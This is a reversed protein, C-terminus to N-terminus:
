QKSKESLDQAAIPVISYFEGNLMRIELPRKDVVRPPPAPKEAPKPAPRPKVTTAATIQEQLLQLAKMTAAKTKAQKSDDPNRLSLHLTGRNQGLDLMAAQDPTVVLTVSQLRRADVKHETPADVLNDVGLIEVNQLLTTTIGGGAHDDGNLTLLVDVRNGPLLFGAVNAAVNPTQITFARMGSPILGALGNKAGKPALKVDLVPEGKQIPHRVVRGVVDKADTAVGAPLLDKPCDAVSVQDEKITDGRSLDNEAVVISVTDPKANNQTAFLNVGIAASLGFVIALAGIIITRT